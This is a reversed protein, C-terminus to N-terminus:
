PLFGGGGVMWGPLFARLIAGPILVLSMPHRNCSLHRNKKRRPRQRRPPDQMRARRRLLHIRIDLRIYHYGINFTTVFWKSTAIKTWSQYM